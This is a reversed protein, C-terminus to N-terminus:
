GRWIELDVQRNDVVKRVRVGIEGLGFELVM